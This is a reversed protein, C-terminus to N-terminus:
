SSVTMVILLDQRKILSTDIALLSTPVLDEAIITVTELM